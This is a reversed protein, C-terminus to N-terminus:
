FLAEFTYFFTRGFGDRVSNLNRRVFEPVLVEEDLVNKLSLTHRFFSGEYGLNLDWTVQAPLDELPAGRPGVLNLVTSASFGFFRKGLGFSLEHAPIYRFNYHDNGDREDGRDGHVFSYTLFADLIDPDAYRLELEVGWATFADGNVYMLSTDAPDNPNRRVRFIKDDYSAWYGLVQAFFGHAGILYALEVTTATEPALETNGFVTGSSTAFYQEFLTPARFSQGAILKLSSGEFVNYVLAGRASVNSSAEQNHTWRVGGMLTLPAAPVLPELMFKAQGFVSLEYVGRDAMFNDETVARDLTTYNAYEESRRYDGDFGLEFHLYDLAKVVAQLSGGARWGTIKSRVTDAATRGLDRHQWDFLARFRLDVMDALDVQYGYSGLYGEIQHGRDVGASWRPTVGLYSEEGRFGNFSLSHTGWGTKYSAGLNFDAGRLYEEYVGYVDQEDVFGYPKGREDTGSASFTLALEESRYYYAGTGRILGHDGLTGSVVGGHGEFRRDQAKRMVVNIVGAYANTGYLVSAPGRLVEIREVEDISLRELSGEGTVANWAPLGDILVLVKNAYHDQLVGRLVPVQRKLHTRMVSVGALTELAESVRRFGYLQLSARDLISVASPTDYLSEAQIASVQVKLLDEISIDGFDETEAPAEGAGEAEEARASELTGGFAAVLLGLWVFNRM